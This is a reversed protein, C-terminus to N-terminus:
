VCNIAWSTGCSMKRLTDLSNFFPFDENFLFFFSEFNRLLFFTLQFNRGERSKEKKREKKGKKIGIVVSQSNFPRRFAYIRKRQLFCFIQTKKEIGFLNFFFDEQNWDSKKSISERLFTKQMIKKCPRQSLGKYFLVIVRSFALTMVFTKFLIFTIKSKWRKWCGRKLCRGEVLWLNKDKQNFFILIEM